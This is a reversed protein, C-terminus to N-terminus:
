KAILPNIEVKKMKSFDKNKGSVFKILLTDKSKNLEYEYNLEKQLITDKLRVNKLYIKSQDVTWKSNTHFSGGFGDLILSDRYFTLVTKTHHSEFSEWIGLFDSKSKDAECGMYICISLSFIFIKVFKM